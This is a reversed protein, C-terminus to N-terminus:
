RVTAWIWFEFLHALSRVVEQGQRRSLHAVANLVMGEDSLLSVICAAATAKTRISVRVEANLAADNAFCLLAGTRYDKEILGMRLATRKQM